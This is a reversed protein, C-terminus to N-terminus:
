SLLALGIARIGYIIILFSSGYLLGTIIGRIIVDPRLPLAALLTWSTFIVAAVIYNTCALAITNTKFHQGLRLCNFFAVTAFITLLISFWKEASFTM